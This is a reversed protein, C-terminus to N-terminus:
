ETPGCADVVPDQRSTPSSKARPGKQMVDMLSGLQWM